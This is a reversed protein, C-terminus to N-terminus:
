LSSFTEQWVQVFVEEQDSGEAWEDRESGIRGQEDRMQCRLYSTHRPVECFCANPSLHIFFM